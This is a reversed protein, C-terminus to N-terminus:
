RGEQAHERELRVRTQEIQKLMTARVRQYSESARNSEIALRIPELEEANGEINFVHSVDSFNGFVRFVTGAPPQKSPDLYEPEYYFNGFNEFTPDLPHEGLVSLLIDVSDPEQGYWKSGNSIINM